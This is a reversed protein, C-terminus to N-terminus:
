SPQWYIQDRETSNTIKLVEIRDKLLLLPCGYTSAM